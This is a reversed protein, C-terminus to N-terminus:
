KNGKNNNGLLKEHIEVTVISPQKVATLYRGFNAVNPQVGVRWPLCVVTGRSM